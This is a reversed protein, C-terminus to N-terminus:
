NKKNEKTRLKYREHAKSIYKVSTHIIINMIEMANSNYQTIIIKMSVFTVIERSKSLLFKLSNSPVKCFHNDGKHPNLFRVGILKSM